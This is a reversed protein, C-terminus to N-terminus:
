VARPTKISSKFKINTPTINQSLCQPHSKQSKSLRKEGPAGMKKFQLMKGDM